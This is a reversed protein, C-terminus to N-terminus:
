PLEQCTTYSETSNRRGIILIPLSVPMTAYIGLGLVLNEAAVKGQNKFRREFTTKPHAIGKPGKLQSNLKPDNLSTYFETNDPAWEGDFRFGLVQSSRARRLDWLIDDWISSASRCWKQTKNLTSLFNLGCGLSQRRM